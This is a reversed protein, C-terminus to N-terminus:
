MHNRALLGGGRPDWSKCVICPPVRSPLAPSSTKVLRPETLGCTSCSRDSQCRHLPLSGSLGRSSRTEIYETVTVVEDGFCFLPSKTRRTFLAPTRIATSAGTIIGRELGSAILLPHEFDIDFLSTPSPQRINIDIISATTSISFSTSLLCFCPKPICLREALVSRRFSKFLRHKLGQPLDELVSGQWHEPGEFLSRFVPPSVRKPPSIM